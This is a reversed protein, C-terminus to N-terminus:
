DKEVPSVTTARTLWRFFAKWDKGIHQAYVSSDFEKTNSTKPRPHHMFDTAFLAHEL